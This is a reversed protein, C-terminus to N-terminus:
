SRTAAIYSDVQRELVPLPVGGNGLVADHFARIDFREGLEREARERLELIKLEGMKYALAQGPWAIYRDVETRIEHLSLATNAALYDLAQQRTWGQVHMGTDVVLRCARWMEYTLRGFEDYPTRYMDMERGLKEAYLGWGEGFAHPYFARRFPAVDTLELAIAMQLHHGPVAEHLALATLAYLPRTELAYTNVWFEGGRQGGLPPPSYRGSTYNPAIEPAVPQVSYPMRPLRGFFAPLKGDIQKAIWSAEKLLADPTKAYFRPDSRLFALFATFDGNFGSQKMVADMEDRIRAVESLGIAHVQEPTVELNTFYHVLASYYARGDPMEAAAIGPRAAATYEERLFRQLERYAPAVEASITREALKRLRQQEAAPVGHPMRLFPRYFVSDTASAIQQGDLVSLIGPLVVAPLTFGERMGLRMNAINAAFYAPVAALRRLFAQYDSVDRMPVGDAMRTIAIHFGDDSLIPARWARYPALAVRHELIFGLLDRDLAQQPNLQGADIARLRREFEVDQQLRRAQDAPAVTPLMDDYDRVGNATATLPDERLQTRWEDAILQQLEVGADKASLQTSLMFLVLLVLSCHRLPM